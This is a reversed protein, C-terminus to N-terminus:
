CPRSRGRGRRRPRSRASRSRRNSAPQPGFRIRSLESSGSVTVSSIMSSIAASGRRAGAGAPAAATRTRARDQAPHAAVVAEVGVQFAQAPQARGDRVGASPASTITPSGRRSRPALEALRQSKMAARRQVVEVDERQDGRGPVGAAVLQGVANGGRDIRSREARRRASPASSESRNGGATGRAPREVGHHQSGPRSPRGRARVPLKM